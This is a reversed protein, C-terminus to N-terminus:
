DMHSGGNIDIEEGTIYGAEESALYCVAAAIEETTALRKCPIDAAMKAQEELSELGGRIDTAALGPAVSNVTIGYHAVERSLAKSFALIGAKAASYHAGGFVGGGRKASVSSMNVIRGYGNKIMTPLADKSLFFTGKLNVSIIRDFDEETTDLVTVPQTIGAINALIDLKEWSSYIDKLILERDDASTIDLKGAKAKGGKNIIEQAVKEAGQLNIDGVYVKAGLSALALAVSRGIGRASGAGTVLATKGSLDFM